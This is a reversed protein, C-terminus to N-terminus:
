DRDVFRMRAPTERRSGGRAKAVCDMARGPAQSYCILQRLTRWLSPDAKPRLRLRKFTRALQCRLELLAQERTEGLAELGAEGLTARWRKRDTPALLVALPQFLRLDRDPLSHIFGTVTPPNKLLTKHVALLSAGLKRLGEAAKQLESLASIYNEAEETQRLVAERDRQEALCQRVISVAAPSWLYGGGIRRLPIHDRESRLLKLLDSREIGLDDCVEQTTKDQGEVM